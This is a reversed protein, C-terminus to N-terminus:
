ASVQVGRRVVLHDRDNGAASKPDSHYWAANANEALMVDNRIPKAM